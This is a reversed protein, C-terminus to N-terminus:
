DTIEQLITDIAQSLNPLVRCQTSLGADPLKDKAAKGRGTLVLIPKCGVALGAQIDTIADGVIYSTQLHIHLMQAAQYLLGPKPKRCPCNAQPHHPCYFINDIRGGYNTVANVMNTHIHTLDALRLIGRGVASQNTIVVIPLTCQEHLRKLASLSGPLFCFEAWSKVYDDRNANIVGDRDLFIAAQKKM